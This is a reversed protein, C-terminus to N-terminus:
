ESSLASGTAPMFHPDIVGNMAVLADAQSADGYLRQALAHSTMVRGFTYSVVEPLSIARTNLDNVAAAQAGILAQFAASDGTDAADDVAAEFAAILAAQAADVDQRSVFTTAALITVECALAMRTGAGVLAVATVTQPTEAALALRVAEMNAITAGAAVSLDFADLLQAGWVGGRILTDANATLDSIAYLLDAAPTGTAGVLTGSLATMMVGLVAKTEAVEDLTM